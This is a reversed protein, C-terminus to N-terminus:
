PAVKVRQRLHGTKADFILIEDRGTVVAWWGPGQTVAQVTADDPLELTDPLIFDGQRAMAPAKGRDPAPFRTFFLFVLTAIGVIMVLTLTTVLLRLFRLARMDPDNKDPENHSPDQM